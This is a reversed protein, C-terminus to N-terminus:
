FSSYIVTLDPSFMPLLIFISPVKAITPNRPPIKAFTNKRVIHGQSKVIKGEISVASHAMEPIAPARMVVHMM